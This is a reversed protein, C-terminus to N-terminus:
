MRGHRAPDLDRLAPDAAHDLLLGRVLQATLPALLVGNRYHATAYLLGPVARSPGLLPLEDPGRPRLGTRVGTVPADVLSPVLEGAAQRLQQVASETHSEDFGVDEITAGVLVTGDPWPVLYGNPGWLVRRIDGPTYELQVLQGRIPTVPIPEADQVTIQSSWSGAALIVHDADWMSAATQVGVRDRPLPYIRIAGIENKFLAGFKQAAAAAALTLSTVGVFGHMPILLAGRAHKAVRPEYDDFTAPLLWKFEVNQTGLLVSQTRLRAEDADGFAIEFTGNRQYIIDKGSDARLREILEDYLELSRAGLERLKEEHGEIYPALIGASARTAGQGPARTELVQVRVGARALEYAITCGIVGAGVVIVRVRSAYHTFVFFVFPM